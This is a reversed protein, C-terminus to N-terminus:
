QNLQNYYQLIYQKVPRGLNIVLCGSNVTNMDISLGM